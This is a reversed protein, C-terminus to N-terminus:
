PRSVPEAILSAYLRLAEEPGDALAPLALAADRAKRAAAERDALVNEIAAALAVADGVAVITGFRDDQVWERNQPIDSVILPRECLLAEMVTNAAGESLSMSIVVDSSALLRPFAEHEVGSFTVVREVVNPALTTRIRAWEETQDSPVRMLLTCPVRDVVQAFARLVTEPAYVPTIGRPSLIVPTEPPVGLRKLLAPDAPLPRFHTRDVGHLVRHLREPRLGNELLGRELAQSSYTVADLRQGLVRTLFRAARRGPFPLLVDSGWATAVIPHTGALAAIWAPGLLWHTQVLDPELQRVLRRFRRSSRFLDVLTRWFAFRGGTELAVEPIVAVADRDSAGYAIWTVDWGTGRVYDAWRHTHVSDPGFIVM